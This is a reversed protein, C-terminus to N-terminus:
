LDTSSKNKLKYKNANESYCIEFFSVDRGFRFAFVLAFIPSFSMRNQTKKNYLSALPVHRTRFLGCADLDPAKAGSMMYKVYVISRFFDVAVALCYM